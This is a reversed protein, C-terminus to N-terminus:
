MATVPVSEKEMEQQTILPAQWAKLIASRISEKWFQREMQLGQIKQAKGSFWLQMTVGCQVKMAPFNAMNETSRIIKKSFTLTILLSLIMIISIIIYITLWLQTFDRTLLKNDVIDVITLQFRELKSSSTTLTQYGELNELHYGTLNDKSCLVINDSTVIVKDSFHYTSSVSNNIADNIQAPSIFLIMTGLIKMNEHNIMRHTIYLCPNAPDYEKDDQRIASMDPYLRDITIDYLEQSHNDFYAILNENMSRKQTYFYTKQNLDILGVARIEPHMLIHARICYELDEVISKHKWDNPNSYNFQNVHDLFKDDTSIQYLLKQYDGIVYEANKKSLLMNEVMIANNKEQLLQSTLRYNILQITLVPLIIAIILLIALQNRIKHLHRSKMNEIFLWM